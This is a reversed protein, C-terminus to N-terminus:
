RRDGEEFVIEAQPLHSKILDAAERLTIMTGCGANYAKHKLRDAMLLDVTLRRSDKIYYLEYPEDIGPVVAKEGRAPKEVLEAFKGSGYLLSKGAM